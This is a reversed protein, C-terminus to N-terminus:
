INFSQTLLKLPCVLCSNFYHRLNNCCDTKNTFEVDNFLECYDGEALLGINWALVILYLIHMVEINIFKFMGLYM